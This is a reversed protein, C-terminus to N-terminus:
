TQLFTCVSRIRQALFRLLWFALFGLLCFALIGFLRSALFDLFGFGLCGVSVLCFDLLHHIISFSSFSLFLILCSSFSIFCAPFDHFM